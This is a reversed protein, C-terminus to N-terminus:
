VIKKLMLNMEYVKNRHDTYSTVMEELMQIANSVHAATKARPTELSKKTFGQATASTVLANELHLRRWTKM